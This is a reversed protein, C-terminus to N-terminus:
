LYEFINGLFRFKVVLYAQLVVSRSLARSIKNGLMQADNRAVKTSFIYTTFNSVYPMLQLLNVYYLLIFASM